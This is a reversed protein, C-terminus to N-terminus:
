RRAHNRWDPQYVIEYKVTILGRATDALMAFAARSLDFERGSVFPGRDNICVTVGRGGSQMRVVTGFPLSRHAATMAYVSFPETSATPRNHFAAGYWSVVAHKRLPLVLLPLVPLLATITSNM